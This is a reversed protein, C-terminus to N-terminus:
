LTLELEIEDRLPIGEYGRAPIEPKLARARTVSDRHFQALVFGRKQYFRLAPLNDNTTNLWVRRCGAARAATVVADLLASGVGQGGALSDLTIIEVAAGEIHYTALGIPESDRFAGFAPLEDAQHVRGASVMRTARWRAVLLRRVWPQDDPAVARVSLFSM